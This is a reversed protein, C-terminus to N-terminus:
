QPTTTQKFIDALNIIVQLKRSWISACPATPAPNKIAEILDLAMNTSSEQNSVGPMKNHDPLFLVTDTIRKSRTKLRISYQIHLTGHITGSVM